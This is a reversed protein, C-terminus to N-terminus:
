IQSLFNQNFKKIKDSFEGSYPVIELGKPIFVMILM